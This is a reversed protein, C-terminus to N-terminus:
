IKKIFGCDFFMYAIITVAVNLNQKFFNKIYLM